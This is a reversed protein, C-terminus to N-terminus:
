RISSMILLVITQTRRLCYDSAQWDAHNEALLVEMESRITWLAVTATKARGEIRRVRRDGAGYAGVAEWRAAQISQEVRQLEKGIVQHEARSLGPKKRKM